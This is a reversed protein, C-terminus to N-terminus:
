APPQAQAVAEGVEDRRPLNSGGVWRVISVMVTSLAENLATTANAADVAAVPVRARFIRSNIIRGTRDNVIKAAIEVEAENGPVLVQFSRLNSLLRVDADTGGGPPVVAIARSSNEFTSILRAQIMSPLDDAWQAGGLSTIVGSADKVLIQQSSLPEVASPPAVALQVGAGGGIRTTAAALDYTTPPPASACAGAMVALIVAPALRLLPRIEDSPPLSVSSGCM